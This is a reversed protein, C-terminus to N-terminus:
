IMLRCSSKDIDKLQQWTATTRKRNRMFLEDEDNITVSTHADESRLQTSPGSDASTVAKAKPKPKPRPRSAM